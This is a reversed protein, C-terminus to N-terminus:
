AQEMQRICKQIAQKEKDTGAMDMMQQLQDIMQDRGDDYYYRNRGYSNMGRSVRSGRNSNGVMDGSMNGNAYYMDTPYYTIHGGYGRQSYGGDQENMAIECADKIADLLKGVSELSGATLEGQEVIKDLEDYLMGKIKYLSEM